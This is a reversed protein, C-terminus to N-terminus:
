ASAEKLRRGCRYCYTALGPAAEPNRTNCEPCRIM